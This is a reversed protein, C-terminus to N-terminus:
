TNSGSLINMLSRPEDKKAIPQGKFIVEHRMAPTIPISHVPATVPKAKGDQIDMAKQRQEPTARGWDTGFDERLITDLVRKDSTGTPIQTEGVKAGWKKGYKNMFGPLIKDYFGKMGQGGVKLDTGSLHSAGGSYKQEGAGAIIKEAVDKGVIDALKSEHVAGGLDIPQGANGTAGLAYTDNPNKLYWVDKVQKSLDYRAAQQEGTTWALQDYGSEAAYRLMRKMALEHWTSKFPADPVKNPSRHLENMIDTWEQRQEPTAQKGLSEIEQRRADMETRQQPTVQYGEKRGKQHWDSQLEELFLTKKGDPSIRDNFRVHALVNPEDFHSSRFRQVPSNAGEGRRVFDEPLTLLLERYNEGGPLQYQSFKTADGALPRGTGLMPRTGGKVVEKVQVNNQRIHDLLDAKSVKDKGKLYDDLGLWKLEDAKVGANQLTSIVQDAKVSNPLKEEAVREAKSFFTPAKAPVTQGSYDAKATADPPIKRKSKPANLDIKEQPKGSLIDSLSRQVVGNGNASAAAKKPPELIPRPTAGEAPGVIGDKEMRDILSQAEAYGIKLRRQLLSTSAKGFETSLKVAEAYNDPQAPKGPTHVKTERNYTGPDFERPQSAPLSETKAQEPLNFPKEEIGATLYDIAQQIDAREKPDTAAKLEAQLRSVEAPRPAVPGTLPVDGKLVKAGGIKDSITVTPQAPKGSLIDSLSRPQAAVGSAKPAVPTVPGSPPTVPAGGAPPTEPPPEPERSGLIDLLGRPQTAGSIDGMTARGFAKSTTLRSALPGVVAGASRTLIGHIQRHGEMVNSTGSPNMEFKIARGVRGMKTLEDFEEPAFLTKLFESSYGALGRGGNTLAFNKDAIQQAVERKLPSVDIGSQQLQRVTQPSGGYNGKGLLRTPVKSPDPEQLVKYLPHEPNNYTQQLQKWKANAQRWQDTAGVSDAAKSMAADIDKAAQGAYRQVSKPVNGSYDRSIDLYASRLQQATSMKVASNGAEDPLGLKTRLATQQEPNLGYTDVANNFDALAKPDVEGGAQLDSLKKLVNRVPNAYQAPVNKLAEAQSALSAAAKAKVDSLDVPIDGAQQQFGQYDQQASQKLNDLGTKAQSKLSTGAAETDPIAETGVRQKFDDVLNGFAAKQQDLREPLEGPSIITREGVAQVTQLGKAQTAQGPLLDIGKSKAYAAVEANSAKGAATAGPLPKKAMATEGGGLAFSAAKVPVATVTNVVPRVTKSIAAETAAQGKKTGLALGGVLGIGTGVGHLAQDVDKNQIGEGIENGSEVAAPGVLPVAAGVARVTGEFPRNEKFATVSKDAQNASAAIAPSVLPVGPVYNQYANVAQAKWRADLRAAIQPDLDGRTGTLLQFLSRNALAKQEAEEDGPQLDPVPPAHAGSATLINPPDIIGAAIDRVPHETEPIGTGGAIGTVLSSVPANMSIGSKPGPKILETPLNKPATNSIPKLIAGPPLGQIDPHIPKLIAGPPLGEIEPQTQTDTM